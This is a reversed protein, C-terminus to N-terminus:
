LMVNTLFKGTNKLHKGRPRIFIVEGYQFLWKGVKKRIDKWFWPIVTSLYHINIIDSEEMDRLAIKSCAFRYIKDLLKPGRVNKSPYWINDFEGNVKTLRSKPLMLNEPKSFMFGNIEHFIGNKRLEEVLDSVFTSYCNGIITIRM